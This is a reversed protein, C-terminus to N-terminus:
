FDGPLIKIGRVILKSAVSSPLVGFRRITVKKYRLLESPNNSTCVGCGMSEVKSLLKEKTELSLKKLLDLDLYVVEKNKNKQQVTEM